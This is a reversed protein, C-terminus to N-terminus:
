RRTRTAAACSEASRACSAGLAVGASTNGDPMADAGGDHAPGADSPAFSVTTPADSQTSLTQADVKADVCDGASCTERDSECQKRLCGSGEILLRAYRIQGPVYGSILRAQALFAGDGDRATATLVFARREDGGLPVLAVRKPFDIPKVVEDLRQVRGALADVGDGGEVEVRLSQVQAKVALEADIEVIVETVASGAEDGGCAVLLAVQAALVTPLWSQPRTTRMGSM